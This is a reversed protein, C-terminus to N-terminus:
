IKQHLLVNELNCTVLTGIEINKGELIIYLIKAFSKVESFSDAFFALMSCLFFCEGEFGTKM